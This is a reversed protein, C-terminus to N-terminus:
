QEVLNEERLYKEDCKQKKKTCRYHNHGKQTEATILCGCNGCRMLGSFAFKHKRKRKKKGRNNMVQQVSDFLKKSIIPEHTGQYFENNFRFVGYYFHNKLFRQVCSVSLPRKRYSSIGSDALFQNVAKLTYEGTAYFEFAKRIFPAKEKDM